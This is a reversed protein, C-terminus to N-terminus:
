KETKSGKRTRRFWAAMGLLTLIASPNVPVTNCGSNCGEGGRNEQEVVEAQEPGRDVPVVPIDVIECPQATPVGDIHILNEVCDTKGLDEFSKFYDVIKEGDLSLPVAFESETGNPVLMELRIGETLNFMVFVPAEDPLNDNKVSLLVFREGENTTITNVKTLRFNSSESTADVGIPLSIITGQGDEVVRIANGNELILCKLPQGERFQCEAHINNNADANFVVKFTDMGPVTVDAECTEGKAGTITVKEVRGGTELCSQVMMQCAGEIWAVNQFNHNLVVDCNGPLGDPGVDESTSTDATNTDTPQNTDSPQNTDNPETTDVPDATDTPSTDEPGVDEIPDVTDDTTGTDSWGTDGSDSTDSTDGQSVDPEVIVDGECDCNENWEDDVTNSNGDDCVTGPLAPGNHVGECDPNPAECDVACSEHTEGTDCTGDGCHSQVALKGLRTPGINFFFTAVALKGDTGPVETFGHKKSVFGQDNFFALPLVWGVTQEQALYTAARVAFGYNVTELIVNGEADFNAYGKNEVWEQSNQAVMYMVRDVVMDKVDENPVVWFQCGESGTNHNYGTQRSVVWVGNANLWDKNSPIENICKRTTDPDVSQYSFWLGDPWTQVGADVYPYIDSNGDTINYVRLQENSIARLKGDTGKFLYANSLPVVFKQQCNSAMFQRTVPDYDVNHCESNTSYYKGEFFIGYTKSAYAPPTDDLIQRVDTEPRGLCAEFSEGQDDCVVSYMRYEEDGVSPSSSFLITKVGAPSDEAEIFVINQAKVSLPAFNVYGVGEMNQSELATLAARQVAVKSGAITDSVDTIVDPHQNVNNKVGEDCGGLAFVATAAAVLNKL